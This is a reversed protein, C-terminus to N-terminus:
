LTGFSLEKSLVKLEDSFGEFFFFFQKRFFVPKLMSKQLIM